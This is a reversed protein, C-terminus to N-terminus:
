ALLKLLSEYKKQCTRNTSSPISKFAYDYIFKTTLPIHVTMHSDLTWYYPHDHLRQRSWNWVHQILRATIRASYTEICSLDIV